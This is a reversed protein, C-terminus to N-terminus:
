APINLTQGVFILNPDATQDTNAAYLNQWDTGYSYAIESLTDGSVVTYTGAVVAQPAVPAAPAVYEAVPAPAAPAEVVPAEVVPAVPAEAVPAEAVPAAPAEAVPAEAVPAPAAPAEAVPAEAAPAEAAPAEVAQPAVPAEAAPAASSASATTGGLGQPGCTPWAGIGQSDLVNEAVRIQEAKSANAASGTGGNDAWTSETFQLGGSFGNRTNIGWDGGSECEAVADWNVSPAATAPAAAGILAAGGFLTATGAVITKKINKNM